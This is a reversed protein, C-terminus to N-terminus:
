WNWPTVFDCAVSQYEIYSLIGRSDCLLLSVASKSPRREKKKRM